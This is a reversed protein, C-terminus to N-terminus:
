SNMSDLFADNDASDSMRDRLFEVAEVPSMDALMKRLVWIRSLRDPPLLIEERRTGSAALDVAPFVRRDALERSLVLEMNGTGKFEEFIVDDM